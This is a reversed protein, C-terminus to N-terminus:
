LNPSHPYDNRPARKNLYKCRAIAISLGDDTDPYSSDPKSHTNGVIYVTVAKERKNRGVWHTPTEFLINRESASM